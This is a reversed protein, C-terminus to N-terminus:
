CLVSTTFVCTAHQRPGARRQELLFMLLWLLSFSWWVWFGNTTSAVRCCYTHPAVSSNNSPICNQSKPTNSSAECVRFCAENKFEKGVKM